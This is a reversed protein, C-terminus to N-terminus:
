REARIRELLILDCNFPIKDPPVLEDIKARLERCETVDGYYARLYYLQLLAQLNPFTTHAERYMNAAAQFREATQLAVGRWYYCDSLMGINAHDLYRVVHDLLTLAFAPFVSAAEHALTFRFIVDDWIEEPTSITKREGHEWEHLLVKLNRHAVRAGEGPSDRWDRVRLGLAAYIVNSSTKGAVYEHCPMQWRMIHGGIGTRRFLRDYAEIKALKDHDYIEYSTSVFSIESRVDLLEATARWNTGPCRPEDDADLKLIYDAETAAVARNRVAAWDRPIRRGTFPGPMHLKFSEIADTFFDDSDPCEILYKLKAGIEHCVAVAVELTKDTSGTDVIVIESVVNKLPLLCRRLVTEGNLVMMNVAISSM